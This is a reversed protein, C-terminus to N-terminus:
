GPPRSGGMGWLLRHWWIRRNVALEKEVAALEVELAARQDDSPDKALEGQLFARRNSLWAGGDIIGPM